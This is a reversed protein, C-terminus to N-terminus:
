FIWLLILEIEYEGSATLQEPDQSAAQYFEIIGIYSSPKEVKNSQILNIILAKELFQQFFKKLNDKLVLKKFIRSPTNLNNRYLGLPLQKPKHRCVKLLYQYFYNGFMKPVNKSKVKEKLLEDYNIKNNKSIQKKIIKSPIFKQKTQDLNQVEEQKDLILTIQLSGVHIKDGKYQM